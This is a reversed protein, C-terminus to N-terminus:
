HVRKEGLLETCLEETAFRNVHLSSSRQVLTTRRHPNFCLRGTRTLNRAIKYDKQGLYQLAMLAYHLRPSCVKTNAKMIFEVERCYQM